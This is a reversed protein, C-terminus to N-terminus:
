AGFTRASSKTAVRERSPGRGPVYMSSFLVPYKNTLSLRFRCSALVPSLLINRHVLRLFRGVLRGGILLVLGCISSVLCVTNLQGRPADGEAEKDKTPSMTKLKGNEQNNELPLGRRNNRRLAGNWFYQIGTVATQSTSLIQEFSTRLTNFVLFLANWLKM